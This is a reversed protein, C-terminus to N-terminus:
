CFQGAMAHSYRDSALCKSSADSKIASNRHRTMLIPPCSYYGRGPSISHFSVIRYPQYSVIRWAPPNPDAGESGLGHGAIDNSYRNRRPTPCRPPRCESPARTSVGASPFAGMCPPDPHRSCTAMDVSCRWPRECLRTTMMRKGDAAGVTFARGGGPPLAM